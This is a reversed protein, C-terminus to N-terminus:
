KLIKKGNVILIGKQVHPLKQGSLNYISENSVPDNDQTIGIVKTGDDLGYYSQAGDAAKLFVSGVAVTSGTEAKYYGIGEDGDGLLYQTGDASIDSIAGILENGATPTVGTTTAFSYFGEDGKLVVADDKAVAGEIPVLRVKGNDFKAAFAKVGDPIAVDTTGVFLTGYGGSSIQAVIGQTIFPLPLADTGITQTWSPNYSTSGNLLYCLEGTDLRFDAQETAYCNTMAPKNGRAFDVFENAETEAPAVLCNEAQVNGSNWGILGANGTATGAKVTGYFACNRFTLNGSNVYPFFGGISADGEGPLFNVTTNVVVNEITSNGDSQGGLGGINNFLSTVSGDVILNKITAGNIKTFLGRIRADSQLDVAISNGQGDFTGSFPTQTGIFGNPYETYDIDATLRANAASNVENAVAAFWYLEKASTIDYFGEADAKLHDPMLMGCVSCWGDEDTHPPIVSTSTNSFVLDGGAPSGDCKLEGNGYVISHSSFPVPLKDEGLTQYWSIATQDGNLLYCMEGTALREDTADTVQCNTMALKNGRAFDVFEAAETEAPAVLCNEAQANGSNWGILGANGTATGAKVTGYFACNRFTLNGSNVYPFFGGISADGEGPLFNVTTNVVVNEITSNGDSQGGLGGINNASSSISGDVVLNKITAGNIKAFLGRIKADTEFHVAISNGQGDFTGSFPTQTGIFGNPYDTYDIDVTLRANAASNVENAVAAFWYLEKANTIDYFGEDDAKLHDPMLMGCVSCWGDEDTHPPIVSTSTNSFVLDGGAPSGDCKLEGNGYVISHSSFPVPMDDEGLTQYWNISTQDGNLLYCMEGTALREDNADTVLCNTMTPKNGRAFDVFENAKIEAPSVLCNQAQVNGSNWGILGANGTATGADVTGYFACNRFTLNGSNVYPFFGGISADGEGRTFTVTTNVVVNEITSNGDSQGGLGGINNASSSISGDVFLNKITAGNIKAFLGRIKTDTEFSVFISYGQGDFTGSFPTQTGIFGDPYDFYDIDATLRANASPNVENVVSAFWYLEKASSIDYFGEDDATLHDPMLVGCVSCWGDEDTHPPIVSSSTNSYVLDGGAPSGDCKLEGNGYVISHSSFPVPMDDEGLTQYWGITTQDGNLLYCMEGTALREDTAEATQCDTATFKGRAYNDCEYANVDAPAVLCNIFQAGGGAWSVLGANGTKAEASIIGCFACNKVTPTNEMDGFLGGCSADSKEGSYSVTTKVIVNEILTNGYSRGGLGGVNNDAESMASGEVILNKITAGNVEAFLGTCRTAGNKIAITLTHEQGDFTGNFSKNGMGIYGQPYETYDIDATLRANASQNGNIIVSFWYLDAASGINYFGEDDAFLTDGAKWSLKGENTDLTLTYIQWDTNKPNWKNDTETFLDMGEGAIALDGEAKPVSSGYGSWGNLSSCIFFGEAHKLPGTWEYVGTSDIETMQSPRRAEGTVWGWPTADGVVYFEDAWCTLGAAILILSLLIKRM